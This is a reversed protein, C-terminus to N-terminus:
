YTWHDGNSAACDSSPLSVTPGIVGVASVGRRAERVREALAPLPRSTDTLNFQFFQGNAFASMKGAKGFAAILQSNVPM